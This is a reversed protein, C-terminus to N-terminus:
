RGTRRTGRYALGMLGVSGIIALSSPEPVAKTTALSAIRFGSNTSEQQPGYNPRSLLNGALSFWSSSRRGRSESGSTNNLDYSTEEWESVNGIMGM